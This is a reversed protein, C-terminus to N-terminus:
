HRVEAICPMDGAAGFWGPPRAHTVRDTPDDRSHGNGDETAVLELTPPGRSVLQLGAATEEELPGGGCVPSRQWQEKVTSGAVVLVVRRSDRRTGHLGSLHDLIVEADRVVVMHRGENM